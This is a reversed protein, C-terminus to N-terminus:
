RGIKRIFTIFIDCFKKPIKIIFFEVISSILESWHYNLECGSCTIPRDKTDKFEKMWCEKCQEMNDDGIVMFERM